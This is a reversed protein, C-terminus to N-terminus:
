GNQFHELYWPFLFTNYRNTNVKPFPLESCSRLTYPMKRGNPLLANLKHDSRKM